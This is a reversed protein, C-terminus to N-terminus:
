REGSSEVGYERRLKACHTGAPEEKCKNAVMTCIIHATQPPNGGGRSEANATEVHMCASYLEGQSHDAQPRACACVALLVSLVSFSIVRVM